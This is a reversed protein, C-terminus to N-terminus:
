AIKEEKLISNFKRRNAVVSLPQLNTFHAAMREERPDTLDFSSLPRKHDIEWFSAYNKWSMGEHFQRELHERLEKSDCGLLSCHDIGLVLSEWTCKRISNARAFKPDKSFRDALYTAKAEANEQFKSMGEQFWIPLTFERAEYCLVTNYGRSTTGVKVLFGKNRLGYPTTGWENLFDNAFTTTDEWDTDTAMTQWRQNAEDM